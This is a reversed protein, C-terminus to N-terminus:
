DQNPYYTLNSISHQLFFYRMLQLVKYIDVVSQICHQYLTLGVALDSATTQMERRADVVLLVVNKGGFNAHGAESEEEDDEFIEEWAYSSMILDAVVHM